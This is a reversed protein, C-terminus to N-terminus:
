FKSEVCISYTDPTNKRIIFDIKSTALKNMREKIAEGVETEADSESPTRFSMAPSTRHRGPDNWGGPPSQVGRPGEAYVDRM